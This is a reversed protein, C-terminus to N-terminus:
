KPKSHIISSVSETETVKTLKFGAADMLRGFQAPTREAGRTMVLMHLDLLGGGPETEDLAMEVLYLDGNFPMAARARRLIKIADADNWDHLIRALIVTLSSVPWEQFLDGAVFRCRDRLGTPVRANQVVEPRDMVTASLSPNARLLAFALEGNGGGADLVETHASLNMREVVSPYDHRAYSSMATHYSALDSPKDALWDFFNRGHLREFASAGTRLTEALGGWATYSERGWHAAADALSTPHARVLPAGRESVRYVGAVSREVLGLEALARLLRGGISPPLRLADDLRAASAPLADFVGLEVSAAITQTRWLGM